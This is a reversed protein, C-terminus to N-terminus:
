TTEQKSWPDLIGDIEGPNEKQFVTSTSPGPLREADIEDTQLQMHWEDDLCDSANEWFM